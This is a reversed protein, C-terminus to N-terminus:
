EEESGPWPLDLNHAYRWVEILDPLGTANFRREDRQVYGWIRDSDAGPALAALADETRIRLSPEAQPSAEDAADELRGIRALIRNLDAQVARRDDPTNRPLDDFLERLEARRKAPLRDLRARQEILVSLPVTKSEEHMETSYPKITGLLHQPSRPEDHTLVSDAVVEFQIANFSPQHRKAHHKADALLREARHHALKHPYGQKCIVVAASITVRQGHDLLGLNTAKDTLQQSFTACFRQAFDIAWPAPLLIFCDDGAMILPLVPLRRHEIGQRHRRVERAREVVQAAPKSLSLPMADAVFQSLDKLDQENRCAQFLTGFGNVDAKLYAVYHRADLEGIAETMTVCPQSEEGLAAYTAKEFPELFTLRDRAKSKGRCASCVYNPRENPVDTGLVEHKAAMGVGCSACVAVLPLQSSAGTARRKAKARRLSQHADECAQQFGGPEYGIIEKAVTLTAGTRRYYDDPLERCFAEARQPDSFRVRFSGGGCVLIDSEDLGYQKPNMLEEHVEQCFGSLLQSAGVVERLRSPGFVLDQIRDAEAAVLYYTV